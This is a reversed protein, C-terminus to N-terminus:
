AQPTTPNSGEANIRKIIYTLTYDKLKEDDVGKFIAKGTSLVLAIMAWLENFLGMNERTHRNRVTMRVTQQNGLTEIENVQATMEAIFAPKLGKLLLVAANSALNNLVVRGTNVVGETNGKSICTRVKDIGFADAPMTLSGEAVNQIYRDAKNLNIRLAVCKDELSLTIARIESTLVGSHILNNCVTARSRMLATFEPNFEDSFGSFEEIDMDVSAALSNALPAVEELKCPILVENEEM